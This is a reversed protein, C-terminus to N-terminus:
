QSSRTRRAADALREQEQEHDRLIVTSLQIMKSQDYENMAAIWSRILEHEEASLLEPPVRSRSLSLLGILLSEFGQPDKQDLQQTKEIFM